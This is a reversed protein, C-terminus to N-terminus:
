QHLTCIADVGGTGIRFKWYDEVNPLEGTLRCKQEAASSMMFVQLDDTLRELCIQEGVKVFIPAVLGFAACVETPAVPVKSYSKANRSLQHGIFVASESRYENAKRYDSACDLVDPDIEKDIEDDWLFIWVFFM